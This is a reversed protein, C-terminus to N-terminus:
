RRGDATYGASIEATDRRCRVHFGIVDANLMGRLLEDRVTVTRFLDSSPFPAHMFLGIRATHMQASPPLLPTM